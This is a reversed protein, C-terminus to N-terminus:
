DAATVRLLDTDLSSFPEPVQFRLFPQRSFVKAIEQDIKILEEELSPSHLSGRVNMVDTSDEVKQCKQRLDEPNFKDFVNQKVRIYRLPFFDCFVSVHRECVVTDQCPPSVLVRSAEKHKRRDDDEELILHNLQSVNESKDEELKKCEAELSELKEQVEKAQRAGSEQTRLLIMRNKISEIRADLNESEQKPCSDKMPLIPLGSNMNTNRDPLNSVILITRCSPLSVSLDPFERGFRDSLEVSAKSLSDKWEKMKQDFDGAGFAGDFGRKCLACCKEETSRQHFLQYMTEINNTMTFQGLFPELNKIEKSVAEESKNGSEARLDKVEHLLDTRQEDRIRLEEELKTIKANMKTRETSKEDLEQKCKQEYSRLLHICNELKPRRDGAAQLVKEEQIATVKKV